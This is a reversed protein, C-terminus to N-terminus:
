YKHVSIKCQIEKYAYMVVPEGTGAIHFPMFHFIYFFFIKQANGSSLFYCKDTQRLTSLKIHFAKVIVMNVM